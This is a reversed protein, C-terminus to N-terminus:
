FKTKDDIYFAIIDAKWLVSTTVARKQGLQMLSHMCKLMPVLCSLSVVIQVDILHHFRTQPSEVNNQDEMMKVVLTKYKNMVRIVPSMMSLWRTKDQHLIKLWKTELVEALKVIWHAKKAIPRFVYAPISSPRRNPECYPPQQTVEYSLKDSSVTGCLLCSM